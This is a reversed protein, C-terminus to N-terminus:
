RRVLEREEVMRKASREQAEKTDLRKDELTEKGMATRTERSVYRTDIPITEVKHAEAVENWLYAEEYYKRLDKVSYRLDVLATGATRFTTLPDFLKTPPVPAIVFGDIHASSKKNRPSSDDIMLSFRSYDRSSPLELKTVNGILYITRTPKTHLGLEELRKDAAEQVELPPGRDEQNTFKFMAQTLGKHELQVAAILQDRNVLPGSTIAIQNAEIIVPRPVFTGGMKVTGPEFGRGTTAMAAVNPPIQKRSAVSIIHLSEYRFVLANDPKEQADSSVVVVYQGPFVPAPRLEHHALSYHYAAGAMWGLLRAAGYFFLGILCVIVVSLLGIVVNQWLSMESNPKIQIEGPKLDDGMNAVRKTFRQGPYDILRSSSSLM